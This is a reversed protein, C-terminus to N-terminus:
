SSKRLGPILGMTGFQKLKLRSLKYYSSVGRYRATFICINKIYSISSKKYKQSYYLSNLYNIPIIYVNMLHKLVM